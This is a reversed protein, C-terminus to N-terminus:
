TNLYHALSFFVDNCNNPKKKCIVIKYKLILGGGGIGRENENNNNAAQM